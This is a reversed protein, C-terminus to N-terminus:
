LRSFLNNLAIDEKANEDKYAKYETASDYPKTSGKKYSMTSPRELQRDNVEIIRYLKGRKLNPEDYMERRQKNKYNGSRTNELNTDKYASRRQKNDDDEYEDEDRGVKPQSIDDDSCKSYAFPDYKIFFLCTVTLLILFLLVRLEM